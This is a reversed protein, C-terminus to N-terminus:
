PDHVNLLKFPSKIMAKLEEKDKLKLVPPEYVQINSIDVLDEWWDADSDSEKLVDSVLLLLPHERVYIILEVANDRYEQNPVALLSVFFTEPVLSFANRKLVPFILDQVEQSQEKFAQIM